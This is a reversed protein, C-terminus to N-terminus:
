NMWNEVLDPHMAELKKVIVIATAAIAIRMPRILMRISKWM